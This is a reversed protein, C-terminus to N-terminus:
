VWRFRVGGDRKLRGREEGIQSFSMTVKSVGRVEWGILRGSKSLAERRPSGKGSGSATRVDSEARCGWQRWAPDGGDRGRVVALVSSHDCREGPFGGGLGGPEGSSEQRDPRMKMFTADASLVSCAEILLQLSHIFSRVFSRNFKGCTQRLLREEPWEPSEPEWTLGDLLNQRGWGPGAM